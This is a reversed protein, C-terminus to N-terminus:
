GQSKKPKWANNSLHNSDIDSSAKLRSLEQELRQHDDKHRQFDLEIKLRLTELKRKNHGEAAEKSHQEEEMQALAEEKAKQEQRWKAQLYCIFSFRFLIRYATFYILIELM